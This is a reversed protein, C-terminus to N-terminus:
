LLLHCDPPVASTVVLGQIARSKPVQFVGLYFSIISIAVQGPVFQFQVLSVVAVVVERDEQPFSCVRCDGFMSRSSPIRLIDRSADSGGNLYGCSADEVCGKQIFFIASFREM